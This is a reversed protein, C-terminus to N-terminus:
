GGLFDKKLFTGKTPPSPHGFINGNTFSNHDLRLGVSRILVLGLLHKAGNCVLVSQM